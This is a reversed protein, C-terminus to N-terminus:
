NAPKDSEPPCIPCRLVGTADSVLIAGCEPCQLAMVDEARREADQKEAGELVRTVHGESYKTIAM